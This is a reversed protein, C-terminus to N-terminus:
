LHFHSVVDLVRVLQEGSQEPFFVKVFQQEVAITDGEERGKGVDGYERRNGKKREEKREGRRMNKDKRADRVKKTAQKEMVKGNSSEIAVAVTNDLIDHLKVM